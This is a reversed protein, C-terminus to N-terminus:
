FRNASSTSRPLPTLIFPALTLILLALPTLILLALILQRSL